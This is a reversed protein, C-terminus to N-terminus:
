IHLLFFFISGLFYPTFYNIDLKLHEVLRKLLYLARKQTLADPHILGKLILSWGSNREIFENKLITSDNTFLIPNKVLDRLHESDGEKSDPSSNLHLIKFNMNM